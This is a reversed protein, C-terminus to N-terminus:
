LKVGARSLIDRVHALFKAGEIEPETDIECWELLELSDKLAAILEDHTNWALVIDRADEDSLWLWESSGVVGGKDTPNDCRQQGFFSGKAAPSGEIALAWSHTDNGVYVLKGRVTEGRSGFADQRDDSGM